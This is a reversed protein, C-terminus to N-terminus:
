HIYCKYSVICLFFKQHLEANRVAAYEASMVETSGASGALENLLCGTEINLFIKGARLAATLLYGCPYATFLYVKKEEEAVRQSGLGMVGLIDVKETEAIHVVDGYSGIDCRSLYKDVTKFAAVKIPSIDKARGLLLPNGLTSSGRSGCFVDTPLQPKKFCYRM